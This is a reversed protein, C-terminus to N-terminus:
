SNEKDEKNEKNLLRLNVTFNSNGDNINTFGKHVM